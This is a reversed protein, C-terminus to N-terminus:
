EEKEKCAIAEEVQKKLQHKAFIQKHEKLFGLSFANESLYIDMQYKPLESFLEIHEKVFAEFEDPFNHFMLKFATSHQIEYFHEKLVKKSIKQCGDCSLKDWRIRDSFTKVFEDTLDHFISINTWSFRSPREAVFDIPLEPHCSLDSFPTKQKKYNDLVVDIPVKRGLYRILYGLDLVNIYQRIVDETIENQKNRILLSSTEVTVNKLGIDLPLAKQSFADPYSLFHENERLITEPFQLFLSWGVGTGYHQFFERCKFLERYFDDSFKKNNLYFRMPYVLEANEQSGSLYTQILLILTKEDIPYNKRLMTKLTEIDVLGATSAVM